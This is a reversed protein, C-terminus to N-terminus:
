CIEWHGSLLDLNADVRLVPDVPAVLLVCGRVDAELQAATRADEILAALSVITRPVPASSGARVEALSSDVLSRMSALSRKLVSGTAGTLALGGLELARVSLTAM